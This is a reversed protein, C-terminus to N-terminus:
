VAPSATRWFFRRLYIMYGIMPIVGGFSLWAAAQGKFMSMKEMRAIQDHTYGMLAYMESVDHRSYTVFGSVAFLCVCALIVWWGRRDLKYFAWSGYGWVAAFAVYLAKAMPGAVIAGFFPLAAPLFILSAILASVAFGFWLSVALVPLPCRDTWRVVPDQAECTAKVNRNQYFFIWAAPLIIFIVGGFIAMFVLMAVPPAPSTHAGNRAMEENMGETFRSAGFMMFIMGVFGMILWTWSFILLLARAWRQAMMSGIGLTVLIAALVGYMVLIPALMRLDQSAGGPQPFKAGYWMLPVFLACVGGVLMTMLGFIILGAKMDKFQRNPPVGTDSLPLM